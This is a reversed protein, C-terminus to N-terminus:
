SELSFILLGARGLKSRGFQRYIAWIAIARNLSKATKGIQVIAWYRPEGGWGVLNKAKM